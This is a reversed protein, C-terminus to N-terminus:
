PALSQKPFLKEVINNILTMSAAVKKDSVVDHYGPGDLNNKLLSEVRRHTSRSLAALKKHLKNKSDFKPMPLNEVPGTHFDRDSMRCAESFFKQLHTSNFIACLYHLEDLSGSSYWYNTGDVVIPTQADTAPIVASQLISGSKNYIVKHAHARLSFQSSFKGSYDLQEALTEPASAPKHESYLLEALTWFNRFLSADKGPPLANTRLKRDVIDPAVVREFGAIGFPIVNKSFVGMYIFSNEVKGEQVLNQWAGKSARTKFITYKNRVHTEDGDCVILTQPFITAGNRFAGSYESSATHWIRPKHMDLALKVAPWRMTRLIKKDDHNQFIKMNSETLASPTKEKTGFVVCSSAQKFPPDNVKSLDWSETLSAMRSELNSKKSDWRGTRFLAWQRGKLASYPLVFGFKDAEGIYHDVCTAAFTAALDNQTALNGGAWVGRDIAHKRFEDQRLKDDHMSNFVVWPPNGILRNHGPTDSHANQRFKFPQILNMLYSKWVHNRHNMIERHFFSCAELIYRRYIDNSELGFLQVALEPKFSNDPKEVIRFFSSIQDEVNEGLLVDSPFFVNNTDDVPIQTLIVNLAKAETKADWQVSDGLFVNHNLSATTSPMQSLAMIKTAKALEVAVPHIDIGVVLKTIIDSQHQLDDKLGPTQGAVNQLRRVAHYLFTGSGCSPDMVMHDYIDDMGNKLANRCWLDDLVRECMAQALWDPTYYEGYAHRLSAPITNHYLDKLVDRGAARWEYKSVTQFIKAYLQNGGKTYSDLLWGPFGDLIQKRRRSSPVGTRPKLIDLIIRSIIILLTHKAFLAIKDSDDILSLMHSGRLLRKWLRLKVNFGPNSQVSKAAKVIEDELVEVWGVDIPPMPRATRNVFNYLYDLVEMCHTDNDCTITHPNTLRSETGQDGLTADYDYFQWTHGNTICAKWGQVHGDLTQQPSIADIYRVAQEKPTEDLPNSSRSDLETGPAKTEIVINNCVLDAPGNGTETQGFVPYNPFLSELINWVRHRINDENVRPTLLARLRLMENQASAIDPKGSRDGRSPRFPANPAM